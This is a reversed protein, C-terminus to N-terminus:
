FVDAPDAQQLKQLAITGSITCMVITLSFVTIARGTNMAIPLLTAAYTVHYLVNALLFSPIFGCCALILAEQLLVGILYGNTYGMAKLTAYEPLHEAVDSHLIQYVIVIGVIFGMSVGITFIFGIGTGQAWYAEEISAWEEPTLIKVDNPLTKAIEAKVAQVDSGPKLKILGAEMKDPTRDPHIYMFTSDSVIVNGDAAFSSGIAFTGTAKILTQNLQANVFGQKEIQIAIDGYEPRGARDFLVSGLQQLQPRNQNVEPLNFAHSAPDAGWILITRSQKTDPNQWQGSSIYIPTVTTVAPNSRTQYLRERPSSRVAFLTQFQTNAIILDANLNRYPIKASDYLAGEFGMQIFILLDAFAIGAIAILFRTKQHSLQLWALPTKNFRKLMKLM